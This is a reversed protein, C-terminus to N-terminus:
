IFFEYIGIAILVIGAIRTARDGVWRSFYNHGVRIGVVFFFFSIMATLLATLGPDLGAMGGGLGGALNNLSLAMGLVCAEKFDIAGSCDRDVTAPEKLIRILIGLSKIQLTIVTKPACGAGGGAKTEPEGTKKGSNESPKAWSQFMIWIGAAIMIGSSIPNAWVRPLLAFVYEGAKMAALTGLGTLVAILLNSAFPLRIRRLGYVIGVGLSDLSTSLALLVISLLHM